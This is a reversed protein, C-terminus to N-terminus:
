SQFKIRSLTLHLTRGCDPSGGHSWGADCGHIIGGLLGGGGVSCFMVDPVFDLEAQIEQIM